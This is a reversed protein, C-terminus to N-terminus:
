PQGALRAHSNKSSYQAPVRLIVSRSMMRAANSYVVLGELGSGPRSGRCVRRCIQLDGAM